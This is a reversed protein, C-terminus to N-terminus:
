KNNKEIRGYEKAKSSNSERLMWRGNSTSRCNEKSEKVSAIEKVVQSMKSVYDPVSSGRVVIARGSIKSNLAMMIGGDVNYCIKM